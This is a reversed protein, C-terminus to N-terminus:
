LVVAFTAKPAQTCMSSISPGFWFFSPLECPTKADCNIAPTPTPTAIPGTPLQPNPSALASSTFTVFAIITLIAFRM